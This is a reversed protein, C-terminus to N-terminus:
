SKAEEAETTEVANRVVRFRGWELAGKKEPRGECLGIGFGALEVLNIITEPSIRNELFQIRVEASWESFEPRWRLDSAGRSLVVLDERVRYGGPANLRILGGPCSHDPDGPDDPVVFISKRLETKPLGINAHAASVMANKLATAPIGYGGDECLYLCKLAEEEPKVIERKRVKTGETKRKRFEDKLDAGKRHFVIPSTPFNEIPVTIIAIRLPDIAVDNRSSSTKTM